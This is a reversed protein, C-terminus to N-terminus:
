KKLLKLVSEKFEQMAALGVFLALLILWLFLTILANWSPGASRYTLQILLFGLATIALGVVLLLIEYLTLKRKM